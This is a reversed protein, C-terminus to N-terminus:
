TWVWSPLWPRLGRGESRTWTPRTIKKPPSHPARLAKQGLSAIRKNHEAFSAQKARAKGGEYGLRKESAKTM